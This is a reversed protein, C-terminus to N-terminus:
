VKVFRMQLNEGKSLMELLLSSDWTSRIVSTNCNFLAILNRFYRIPKAPKGDSLIRLVACRLLLFFFM